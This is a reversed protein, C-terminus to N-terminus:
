VFVAKHVRITILIKPARHLFINVPITKSPIIIINYYSTELACYTMYYIIYHVLTGVLITNYHPFARPCTKRSYILRAPVLVSCLNAGKIQSTRFKVRFPDRNTLSASVCLICTTLEPVCPFDTM